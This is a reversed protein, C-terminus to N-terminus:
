RLINLARRCGATAGAWGGMGDNNESHCSYAVLAKETNHKLSTTVLHESRPRTATPLICCGQLWMITLTEVGPCGSGCSAKHIHIRRWCRRSPCMPYFATCNHDGSYVIELVATPLHQLLRRLKLSNRGNERKQMPARYAHGKTQSASVESWKLM